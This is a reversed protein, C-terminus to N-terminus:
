APILGVVRMIISDFYCTQLYLPAFDLVSAKTGQPVDISGQVVYRGEAYGTVYVIDGDKLDLVYAGGCHNHEGIVTASPYYSIVPGQCLDIEYQHGSTWVHVSVAVEVPEVYVAEVEPAPLVPDPAAATVFTQQTHESVELTPAAALAPSSVVGTVAILLALIVSSYKPFRTVM